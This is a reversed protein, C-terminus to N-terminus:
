QIPWLGLQRLLIEIRRAVIPRKVEGAEVAEVMSEALQRTFQTFAGRGSPIDGAARRREVKARLWTKPDPRPRRVLREIIDRASLFVGSIRRNVGGGLLGPPPREVAVLRGDVLVLDYQHRWLSPAIPIINAPAGEVSFKRIAQVRRARLAELLEYIALDDQLGGARAWYRFATDADWEDSAPIPDNNAKAM